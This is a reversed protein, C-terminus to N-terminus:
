MSPATGLTVAVDTSTQDAHTVTLTIIDAPLHGSIAMKLQDVGLVAAGDVAVIV